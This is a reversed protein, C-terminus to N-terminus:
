LALVRKAELECGHPLLLSPAAPHDRDVTSAGGSGSGASREM